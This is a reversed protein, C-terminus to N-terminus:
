YRVFSLARTSLAHPENSPGPKEETHRTRLVSYSLPPFNVHSILNSSTKRSKNQSHRSDVPGKDRGEKMWGSGVKGRHMLVIRMYLYDERPPMPIPM